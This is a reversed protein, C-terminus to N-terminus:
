VRRNALTRISAVAEEVRALAEDLVDREVTDFNPNTLVEHADRARSLLSTVANAMRVTIDVTQPIPKQWRVESAVSHHFHCAPHGDRVGIALFECPKTKTRYADCAMRKRCVTAADLKTTTEM